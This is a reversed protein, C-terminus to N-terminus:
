DDGDVAVGDINDDDEKEEWDLLHRPDIGALSPKRPVTVTITQLGSRIRHTELHLPATLEGKGPEPSEFVGIEVPENMALETEVGAEDIVLKSAKVDLTVQWTGAPTRAAKVRETRFQWFTNVEFLDHLLYHMSAPTVAKLERYLDLTTALPAEDPEHREYLRRLAANVKDEGISESIAYLAFPAKRYSMWPDLGRLLPEGRRIPAIPYPQRLFSTYRHLQGVGKAHEVVKMAYYTAVGEAIV